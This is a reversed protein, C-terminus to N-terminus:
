DNKQLVKSFELEGLKKDLFSDIEKNKIKRYDKEGDDFLLKIEERTNNIFKLYEDVINSVEIDKTKLHKKIISLTEECQNSEFYRILAALTGGKISKRVFDRLYKDNFTYM